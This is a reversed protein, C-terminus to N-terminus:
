SRLYGAGERILAAGVAASVAIGAASLGLTAAAASANTFIIAGGGVGLTVGELAKRVQSKGMAKQRTRADLEEALTCSVSALREIANSV